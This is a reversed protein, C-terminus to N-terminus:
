KLCEMDSIADDCQSCADPIIKQSAALPPPPLTASDRVGGAPLQSRWLPPFTHTRQQHPPEFIWFTKHYPLKLSVLPHHIM